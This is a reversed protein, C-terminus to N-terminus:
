LEKAPRVLTRTRRDNRFQRVRADVGFSRELRRYEGARNLIPRFRTM